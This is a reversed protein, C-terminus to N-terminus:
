CGLLIRILIFRNWDNSTIAAQYRSGSYYAPCIDVVSSRYNSFPHTIPFDNTCHFLTDSVPVRVTHSSLMEYFGVSFSVVASSHVSARFRNLVGPVISPRYRRESRDSAMAILIALLSAITVTSVAASVREFSVM